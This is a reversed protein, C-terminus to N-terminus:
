NDVPLDFSIVPNAIFYGRERREIDRLRGHPDKVTMAAHEQDNLVHAAMRAVLISQDKLTPETWAAEIEHGTVIALGRTVVGNRGDADRASPDLAILDLVPVVGTARWRMNSAVIAGRALTVGSALWELRDVSGDHATNALITHLREVRARRDLAAWGIASVRWAGEFVDTQWRAADWVAPDPHAASVIRALAMGIM